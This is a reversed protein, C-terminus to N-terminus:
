QQNNLSKLVEEKISRVDIVISQLIETEEVRYQIIHRIIIMTWYWWVVAITLGISAMEWALRSELIHSWGFIIGLSAVVAFGSLYLWGRRERDIQRLEKIHKKLKNEM